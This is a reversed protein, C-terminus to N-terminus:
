NTINTLNFLPIYHLTATGTASDLKSGGSSAPGSLWDCIQEFRNAKGSSAVLSAYTSFLM